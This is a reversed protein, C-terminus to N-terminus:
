KHLLVKKLGYKVSQPLPAKMLDSITKEVDYDIRKLQIEDDEYVAYCAQGGDRALGVSGPNVIMESDMKKKYQVHTHGVLIYEAVIGTIEGAIEDQNLYKFMDGQPHLMLWISHLKKM